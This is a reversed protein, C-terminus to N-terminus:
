LSVAPSKLIYLGHNLEAVGIMRQTCHDHNISHSPLSQSGQLLALLAKQQASTLLLKGAESDVTEEECTVTHSEDDDGNINTCNNVAGNNEKQQLHQMHPPFGYKRWCNYIVHNTQGCHSCLMKGKGRGGNSRGGGRYGRGRSSQGRGAYSNSGNIALLKSEDLPIVIQREQQVLLSYVKAIKPLPDMLMIQSRVAHYQENLGKLFRIVQDCDKYEKLKAMAICDNVCNSAPVPRFNDLEQWLKKMKTFYASISSDGQKLTYIEEQIDSIRFIDGQYFRDKLDLWIESATDMWIVSQAIDADVSNTLWSMIMTNCRDWAISDHDEDDPRPLTGNVFRLKNKSKLAMTMSRSWSHYNSGSLLPTVLVLGPNENPHLFYPNLTDTQYGKNHSQATGGYVSANSDVSM